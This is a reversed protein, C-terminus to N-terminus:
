SAAVARVNGNAVVTSRRRRLAISL